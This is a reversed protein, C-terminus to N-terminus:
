EYGLLRLPAPAGLCKCTRGDYLYACTGEAGAGSVRLVSKAQKSYFNSGQAFCVFCTVKIWMCTGCLLEGDSVRSAIRQWCTQWGGVQVAGATDM